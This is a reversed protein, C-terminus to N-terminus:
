FIQMRVRRPRGDIRAAGHELAWWKTKLDFFWGMSGVEHKFECFYANVYFLLTAAISNFISIREM